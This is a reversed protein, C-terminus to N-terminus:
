GRAAKNKYNKSKVRSQKHHGAWERLENEGVFLSALFFIFPYLFPLVSPPFSTLDILSSLCLLPSPCLSMCNKGKASIQRERERDLPLSSFSAINVRRKFADYRGARPKSKNKPPVSFCALSSISHLSISLSRLSFLSFFLSQLNYSDDMPHHKGDYM